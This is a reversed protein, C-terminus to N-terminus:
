LIDKSYFNRKLILVNVLIGTVLLSLTWVSANCHRYGKIGRCYKQLLKM